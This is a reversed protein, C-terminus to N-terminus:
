LTPLVCPALTESLIFRVSSTASILYIAIGSIRQDRRVPSRLIVRARAGVAADELEFYWEVGMAILERSGCLCRDRTTCVRVVLVVLM